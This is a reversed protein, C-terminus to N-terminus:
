EQYFRNSNLSQNKYVKEQCGGEVPWVPIMAIKALYFIANDTFIVGILVAVM